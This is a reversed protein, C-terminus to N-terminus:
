FRGEWDPCNEGDWGYPHMGCVLLTDDYRQGHYHQCGICAPHTTKSPYVYTIHIFPDSNERPDSVGWDPSEEDFLLFELGELWDDFTRDIDQSLEDLPFVERLQQYVEDSREQSWLVAEELQQDLHDVVNDTWAEISEATQIVAETMTKELTNVWETLWDDM